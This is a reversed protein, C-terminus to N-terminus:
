CTAYGEFDRGVESGEGQKWRVDVVAFMKGCCRKHKSIDVDIVLIM